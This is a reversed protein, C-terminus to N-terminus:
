KNRPLMQAVSSITEELYNSSVKKALKSDSALKSLFGFDADDTGITLISIGLKKAKDAVKLTSLPDMTAGDTVIVMARAFKSLNEFRNIVEQIAPTLNTGGQIKISNVGTKIENVKNTTGCLHTTNDSFSILGVKYEDIFAKEAFDLAGRKAQEIKNGTMSGSCDIILYVFSENSNKIEWNKVTQISGNQSKLFLEGDDGLTILQKKPSM